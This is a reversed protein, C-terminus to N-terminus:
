GAVETTTDSVLTELGDAILYVKRNVIPQIDAQQEQPAGWSQTMLDKLAPVVAKADPIEVLQRQAQGCKKCKFDGQVKKTSALIEETLFRIQDETFVKNLAAGIQNRVDAPEAM